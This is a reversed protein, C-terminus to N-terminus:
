PLIALSFVSEAERRSRPSAPFGAPSRMRRRILPAYFPIGSAELKRMLDKERRSLTYFAVWRPQPGGSVPCESSARWWGAAKGKLIATAVLRKRLNMDRAVGIRDLYDSAADAPATLEPMEGRNVRHASM